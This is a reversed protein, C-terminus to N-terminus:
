DKVDGARYQKFRRAKGRVIVNPAQVEVANNQENTRRQDRCDIIEKTGDNHYIIREVVKGWRRNHSYRSPSVFIEM